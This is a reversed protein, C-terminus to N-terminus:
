QTLARTIADGVNDAKRVHREPGRPRASATRRRVPKAVPAVPIMAAASEAPNATASATVASAPAPQASVAAAPTPAPAALVTKPSNLKLPEAIAIVSGANGLELAGNGDLRYYGGDGGAIDFRRGGKARSEFVEDTTMQGNRLQWEAFTKGKANRYITLRGALAPPSTLWVGVRNRTDGSAEARYAEEEDLRLGYITATDVPATKVDAWANGNLASSPLFFAVSRVVQDAPLRARVDDAIRKLDSAPQRAELRVSVRVGDATKDQSVIRYAPAAIACQASVAFGLVAVCAAVIMRPM